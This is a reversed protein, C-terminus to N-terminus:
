VKPQEKQISAQIALLAGTPRDQGLQCITGLPRLNRDAEIKGMALKVEQVHAALAGAGDFRANCLLCIAYCVFAYGVLQNAPRDRSVQSGPQGSAISGPQRAGSSPQRAPQSSGKACRCSCPWPVCAISAMPNKRCESFTAKHVKNDWAGKLIIYRITTQRPLAM